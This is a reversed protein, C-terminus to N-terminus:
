MSVLVFYEETSVLQISNAQSPWSMFYDVYKLLNVNILLM